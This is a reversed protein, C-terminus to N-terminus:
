RMNEDWIGEWTWLGCYPSVIDRMLENLEANGEQKGRQRGRKKRSKKAEWFGLADITRLLM